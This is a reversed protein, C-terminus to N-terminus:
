TSLGHSHISSPRERLSTGPRGAMVAQIEALVSLAIQEPTEAGIDLGTPAFLRPRDLQLEGASRLKELMRGTRQRPGLVGIYRVAGPLIRRLAREDYTSNHTAVVVATHADLEDDPLEEIAAAAMRTGSAYRRRRLYGPREDVVLV